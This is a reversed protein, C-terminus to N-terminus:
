LYGWGESIDIVVVGFHDELQRATYDATEPAERKVLYEHVKDWLLAKAQKETDGAAWLIDNLDECVAVFKSM